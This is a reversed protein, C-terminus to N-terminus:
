KIEKDRVCLVYVGDNSYDFWYDHAYKGDIVWIKNPNAVTKTSTWYYTSKLNFYDTNIAPNYRQRDTLYYFEKFQPLRFDTYGDLKLNQCYTNANQFNRNKGDDKKQWILGSKNDKILNTSFKIYSRQEKLDKIKLNEKKNFNNQTNFFYIVLYIVLLIIALILIWPKKIM